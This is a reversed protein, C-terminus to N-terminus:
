PSEAHLIASRLLSFFYGFLFANNKGVTFRRVIRVISRLHCSAPQFTFALILLERLDNQLSGIFGNTMRVVRKLLDDFYPRSCSSRGGKESSREDTAAPMITPNEPITTPTTVVSVSGNSFGKSDRIQVTKTYGSPNTIQTM